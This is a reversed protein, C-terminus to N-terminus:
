SVGEEGFEHKSSYKSLASLVRLQGASFVAAESELSQIIVGLCEALQMYADASEDNMRALLDDASGRAALACFRMLTGREIIEDSLEIHSPLEGMRQTIATEASM